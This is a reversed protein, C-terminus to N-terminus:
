NKWYKEWENRFAFAKDDIARQTALIGGLHDIEHQLLESLDDEATITYNEGDKTQYKVKIEKAREV